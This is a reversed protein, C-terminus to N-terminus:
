TMGSTKGMRKGHVTEERVKRGDDEAQWSDAKRVRRLAPFHQKLVYKLSVEINERREVVEIDSHNPRLKGIIRWEDM